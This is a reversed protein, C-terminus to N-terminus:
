TPPPQTLLLTYHYPICPTHSGNFHSVTLTHTTTPTSYTGPVTNHLAPDHYQRTHPRSPQQHTTLVLLLQALFCYHMTCVHPMYCTSQQFQLKLRVRARMETPHSVGIQRQRRSHKEGICVSNKSGLDLWTWVSNCALGFLSTTSAWANNSLMRM